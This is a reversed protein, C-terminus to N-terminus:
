TQIILSEIDSPFKQLSECGMETVLMMNAVRYGASGPMGVGSGALFTMGPRLVTRDVECLYIDDRSELGRMSGTKALVYEGYGSKRWHEYNAEHVESCTAGPKMVDMTRAMGQLAIGYIKRQEETPKGFFFTRTAEGCGYGYAVTDVMGLVVDGKKLKRTTMYAHLFATRSGAIVRVNVPMPGDTDRIEKTMKSLTQRIVEGAIELETVGEQLSEALVGLAFDTYKARERILDIEEKSKIMRLDRIIDRTNVFNTGPMEKALTAITADDEVGITKGAMGAERLMGAVSKFPQERSPLDFYWQRIDKFWSKFRAYDYEIKPTLLFPDGETPLIVWLLREAMSIHVFGAIYFVSSPRTLILGAIGRSAAVERASKIRRQYTSINFVM